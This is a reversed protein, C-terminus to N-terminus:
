MMMTAEGDHYKMASPVDEPPDVPGRNSQTALGASGSPLPVFRRDIQPIEPVNRSDNNEEMIHYPLEPALGMRNAIWPQPANSGHRPRHSVVDIWEDLTAGNNHSPPDQHNRESFTSHLRNTDQPLTNWEQIQRAYQQRQLAVVMSQSEVLQKQLNWKSARERELDRRLVSNMELVEQLFPDTAKGGIDDLSLAEAMMPTTVPPGHAVSSRLKNKTEERIDMKEVKMSDEFWEKVMSVLTSLDQEVYWAQGKKRLFRGGIDWVVKVVAECVVNKRRVYAETRAVIVQEFLVNGPHGDDREKGITM